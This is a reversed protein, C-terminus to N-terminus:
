PPPTIPSIPPWWTTPPRYPEAWAEYHDLDARYARRTAPAIGSQVYTEVSRVSLDICHVADSPDDFSPVPPSEVVAQRITLPLAPAQAFRTRTLFDPPM